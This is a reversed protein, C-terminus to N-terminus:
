WTAALGNLFTMFQTRREANDLMMYHVFAWSEAYFQGRRDGENYLPSLYGVKLLTPLPLLGYTRLEALHERRPRDFVVASGESAWSGLTSPATM